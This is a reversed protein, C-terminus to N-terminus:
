GLFARYLRQKAMMFDFALRVEATFMRSVNLYSDFKQQFDVEVAKIDAATVLSRRHSKGLQSAVSYAADILEDEDLFKKVKVAFSPIQRGWYQQNDLTTYGLRQEIGDAYIRSASIMRQGHHPWATLFFRTDKEAYVEKIDLMIADSLSDPNKPVLSYIYHKKGLTGPTAGIEDVFYEDLLTLESRSQLFGKLIALAKPSKRDLPFQRMKLAWKRNSDLYARTNVQWREPQVDKLQRLQKFPIEPNLFHTYYGDIFAQIVEPSLFDREKKSWISLSSLFRIMDWCWPGMRSRDFDLLASGRFTRVYNDMHPNGHVFVRPVKTLDVYKGLRAQMMPGVMRFFLLRNARYRSEGEQRLRKQFAPSIRLYEEM